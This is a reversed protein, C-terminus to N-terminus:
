SLLRHAWSAISSVRPKIPRLKQQPTGSDLPLCSLDFSGEDGPASILSGRQGAEKWLGFRYDKKFLRNNYLRIRRVENSNPSPELLEYNFGSDAPMTPSLCDLFAGAQLHCFKLDAETRSDVPKKVYESYTIIVVRPEKVLGVRKKLLGVRFLGCEELPANFDKASPSINDGWDSVCGDRYALMPYGAMKPKKPFGVSLRGTCLWNDPIPPGQFLPSEPDSIDITHSSHLEASATSGHYLLLLVVAASYYLNLPRSLSFPM